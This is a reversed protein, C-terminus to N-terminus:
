KVLFGVNEAVSAAKFEQEWSGLVFLWGSDKIQLSDCSATRLQLANAAM